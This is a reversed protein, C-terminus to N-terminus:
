KKIRVPNVSTKVDTVEIYLKAIEQNAGTELWQEDVIPAFVKGSFLYVEKAIYRGGTHKHDSIRKQVM